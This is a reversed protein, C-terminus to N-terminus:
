EIRGKPGSQEGEDNKFDNEPDVVEDEDGNQRFLERKMLLISGDVDPKPKREKQAQREERDHRPEDRESRREKGDPRMGERRAVQNQHRAPEEQEVLRRRFEM